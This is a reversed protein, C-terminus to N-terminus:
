GKADLRDLTANADTILTTMLEEVSVLETIVGTVQGTPLVGVDDRGDVLGAKTMIPANAAMVVQPWTLENGDKM